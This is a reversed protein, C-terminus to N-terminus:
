RRRGRVARSGPDGGFALRLLDHPGLIPNVRVKWTPAAKYQHFHLTQKTVTRALGYANLGRIPTSMLHWASGSELAASDDFSEEAWGPAHPVAAGKEPEARLSPHVGIEVGWLVIRIVALAPPLGVRFAFPFREELEDPDRLLVPDIKDVGEVGSLAQPKRGGLRRLDQEALRRAKVIGAYLSKRNEKVIDRRAQLM